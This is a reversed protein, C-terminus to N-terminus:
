EWCDAEQHAKDQLLAFVARPHLTAPVSVQSACPWEIARVPLVNWALSPEFVRYRWRHLLSCPTGRFSFIARLALDCGEFVSCTAVAGVGSSLSNLAHSFRRFRNHHYAAPGRPYAGEAGRPDMGREARFASQFDQYNMRPSFKFRGGNWCKRRGVSRGNVASSRSRTVMRNPPNVQFCSF